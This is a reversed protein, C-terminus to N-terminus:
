IHHIIKKLWPGVEPFLSNDHLRSNLPSRENLDVGRIRSRVSRLDHRLARFLPMLPEPRVAM